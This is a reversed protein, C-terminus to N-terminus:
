PSPTSARAEGRRRAGHDARARRAPQVGLPRPSPHLREAAVTLSSEGQHRESCVARGRDAALRKDGFNMWLRDSSLTYFMREYSLGADHGPRPPAPVAAPLRAHELAASRGSPARHRAADAMFARRAEIRAWTEPYRARSSPACRSTPSRSATRSTPRSTTPARPRSSTSRCRWARACSSRRARALGALQGVRRPPDPPGPQPLHRLVPRGAPARHDRQARRGDPRHPAGRHWEAVAEFYPASSGTSTTASQRAAARGRGRGRLRRSLDARGLHRLGDHVPRRAAIRRDSPSLLGFRARPGATLMLHCSLPTGNWGLLAVAEQETM